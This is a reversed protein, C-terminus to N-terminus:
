FYKAYIIFLFGTEVPLLASDTVMLGYGNIRKHCDVGILRGHDFIPRHMGVIFFLGMEEMDQETLMDILLLMVEVDSIELYNDDPRHSQVKRVINSAIREDDNFLMGKLIALRARVRCTAKFCPSNLIDLASQDIRFGKNRLHTVWEPGTRGSSTVDLYIIGDHEQWFRKAKEVTKQGNLFKIVGDYGGFKAIVEKIQGQTLDDETLETYM